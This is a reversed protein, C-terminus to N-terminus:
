NTFNTDFDGGLEHENTYNTDLATGDDGRTIWTVNLFKGGGHSRVVSAAVNGILIIIVWLAM